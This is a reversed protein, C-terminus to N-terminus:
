PQVMERAQQNNKRSIHKTRRLCVWLTEPKCEKEVVWAGWDPIHDGERAM